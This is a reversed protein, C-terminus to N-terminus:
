RIRTNNRTRNDSWNWSHKHLQM